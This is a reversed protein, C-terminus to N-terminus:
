KIAKAIFFGGTAGVLIGLGVGIWLGASGSILKKNAEVTQDFCEKAAKDTLYEIKQDQMRLRLDIKLVQDNTYWYGAKSQNQYKWVLPSYVEPAVKPAEFYPDDAIAKWPLIMQFLLVIATIRKM